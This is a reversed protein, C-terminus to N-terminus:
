RHTASNQDRTAQTPLNSKWSRIFGFMTSLVLVGGDRDQIDAPRVVAHVHDKPFGSVGKM